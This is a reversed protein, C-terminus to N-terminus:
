VATNHAVRTDVIVSESKKFQYCVRCVGGTCVGSTVHHQIATFNAAQASPGLGLVAGLENFNTLMSISMRDRINNYDNAVTISRLFLIEEMKPTCIKHVNSVNETYLLKHSPKRRFRTNSSAIGMPLM